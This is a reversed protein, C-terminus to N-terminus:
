MEFPFTKTMGYFTMVSAQSILVVDAQAVSFTKLLMNLTIKKRKNMTKLVSKRKSHSHERISGIGKV